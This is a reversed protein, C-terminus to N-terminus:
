YCLSFFGRDGNYHLICRSLIDRGILADISQGAALDSAVVSITEFVLSPHENTAGPVAIAVDYTDALHPTGGTSPTLM